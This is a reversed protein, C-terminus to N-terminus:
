AGFYFDNSQPDLAFRINALLGSYGLFSVSSPWDRSSFPATPKWPNRVRQGPGNELGAARALDPSLVSWAAGTDLQAVQDGPLGALRVKIYIKATPEPYEPLHDLFKSRGSAFLDGLV